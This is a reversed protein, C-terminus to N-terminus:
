NNLRVPMLLYRYDESGPAAIVVPKRAETFSLTVEESALAGLGDLLYGPNFGTVLSETGSIAAAVTESAESDDATSQGQLTVDEGEIIMRVAQHRETVLAVRKVAAVLAARNITVVTQVQAPFLSKFDPYEVEIIRINAQREDTTMGFFGADGMSLVVEQGGLSKTADALIRSQVLCGISTEADAANWPLVRMALRYRDTAALTLTDADAELKIAALHPVADDRSAAIAVQSVAEAFAGLDVKGVPPPMDPLVPYDEVPLTNLHFRVSGCSLSIRPADAVVEVPADPLLRVIDALLRGNVLAGGEEVVDAPAENRGSAEHDFASLTVRGDTSAQISISALAPQAPKASVFKASWAAADALVSQDIRFKV